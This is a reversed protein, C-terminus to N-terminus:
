SMAEDLFSKTIDNGDVDLVKQITEDHVDVSKLMDKPATGDIKACAEKASKAEVEVTMTAHVDISVTYKM